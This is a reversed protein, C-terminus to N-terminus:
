RGVSKSHGRSLVELIRFAELRLPHRTLTILVLWLIIGFFITTLIYPLPTRESSRYAAMLAASPAVAGLTIFANRLYILTFDGRKTNTIQRMHPRYLLNTFVASIVRSAAAATLSLACGLSFVIVSFLSRKYEIRTQEGTRGDLVFMEWSMSLSIYVASSLALLCLPHAAAVWKEGYVVRIFPGSVIALGLFAPWLIVTNIDNIRIYSERLSKGERKQRSLDVFLVRGTVLHINEWVLNNLNSARSYLGLASLGLMRALIFDTARDGATTVGSIAMMQAGFRSVRRLEAFGFRFSVFQRGALNLAILGFVAAALQGYALSMYSQGLIALIVSLGQSILTKLTGIISLTKFQATRELNAEPLFQLCSIIPSLALLLMVRRVGAEHLFAGGFMSALAILAALILSLITNVTFASAQLSASMDPERVIFGFLGFSQFVSILSVTALAVAYVGMEYPGLLRAVVVSSGFQMLLYLVQGLGVWVLHRRVSM